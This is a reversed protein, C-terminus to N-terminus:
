LVQDGQKAQKQTHMMLENRIACFSIVPQAADFFQRTRMYGSSNHGNGVMKHVFYRTVHKYLSQYLTADYGYYILSPFRIQSVGTISSM